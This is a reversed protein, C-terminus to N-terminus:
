TKRWRAGEQIWPDLAPERRAERLFVETARALRRKVTALSTRCAEAVERLEMGEIFRLVFVTREDQGLEDLVRYTAALAACAEDDRGPGPAEPLEETAFFSLWRKRRASRIAKHAVHVAISTIWTKLSSAGRFADVSRYVQVFVDHLPDALDVNTGLLRALISRVHPAFIEYVAVRAGPDSRRLGELLADERQFPAPRVV